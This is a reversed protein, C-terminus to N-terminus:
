KKLLHGSTLYTVKKKADNLTFVMGFLTQSGSNTGIEGVTVTYDGPLLELVDFKVAWTNPEANDEVRTNPMNYSASGSSDGGKDRDNVLKLTLVNAENLIIHLSTTQLVAATRKIKNWLALPLDFTAYLKEMHFQRDPVKAVVDNHAYPITVEGHDHEVVLSKEGFAVTPLSSGKCTDIIGLLRNLEYLSCDVPLPETLEVDAIFNRNPNCARQAYGSKFTAQNNINAFNKLIEVTTETLNYSSM